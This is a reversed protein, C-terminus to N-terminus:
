KGEKLLKGIEAMCSSAARGQEYDKLLRRIADLTARSKSVRHRIRDRDSKSQPGTM